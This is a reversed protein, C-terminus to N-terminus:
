RASSSQRAGSRCSPLARAAIAAIATAGGSGATVEGIYPADGHGPFVKAVKRGLYSAHDAM